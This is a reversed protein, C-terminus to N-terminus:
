ISAGTKVQSHSLTILTGDAEKRERSQQHRMEERRVIEELPKASYELVIEHNDIVSSFGTQYYLTAPGEPARDLEFKGDRAANQVHNPDFVLCSERVYYDRGFLTICRLGDAAATSDSVPRVTAEDAFLQRGFARSEEPVFRELVSQWWESMLPGVEPSGHLFRLAEGIRSSDLSTEVDRRHANLTQAAPEVRGDMWRDIDLVAQSQTVGAAFRLFSWIYRFYLHECLVRAWFLFRHMRRNEAATMTLHSLVCEFDNRDSRVTAFQLPERDQDYETNPLILNTYTAIRPTYCAVRDYGELFSAYTEGPLGWILEAYCDMRRAQIWSSVEQFDNLRMNSRRCLRLAEPSLTQLALTFDSALGTEAMRGLINYFVKGKNKAWSTVLNRPYGYRSRTRILHELFEEDARLMGFNADCLVVNEVRFRGLLDLEERLREPSFSYIKQGTAGGWYCFACRYPCGRNTELLAADYPFDGHVDELPIAGSLLPSPIEDLNVIRPSQPTTALAGDGTRFSIGSVRSLDCGRGHAAFGRVIERFSYEGEGNAIVDVEPCLRFVRAAQDSVHPGGFVCLGEPNIRKFTESLACATRFNWGFVSFGLIDVPGEFLVDTAIQAPTHDANYSHIDIQVERALERDAMVMAKLYGLALPMTRKQM